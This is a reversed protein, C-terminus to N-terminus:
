YERTTVTSLADRISNLRLPKALFADFGSRLARDRVSQLADGTIAVIKVESDGVRDRISAAVEFGDADPMHIDLLVVDPHWAELEALASAKGNAVRADHGLTNLLGQIVELNEESDDM